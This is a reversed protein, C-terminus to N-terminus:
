DTKLTTTFMHHKVPVGNDDKDSNLVKKDKVTFTLIQDGTSNPGSKTKDLKICAPVVGRREDDGSFHFILDGKDYYRGTNSNFVKRAALAKQVSAEMFHEGWGSYRVDRGLLDLIEFDEASSPPSRRSPSPSSIIRRKKPPPQQGEAEGLDILILLYYHNSIM